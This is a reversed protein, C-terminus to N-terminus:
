TSRIATGIPSFFIRYPPTSYRTYVLAGVKTKQPEQSSSSYALLLDNGFDGPFQSRSFRSLAPGSLRNIPVQHVVLVCKFVRVVSPRCLCAKMSAHMAQQSTPKNAQQSTPQHEESVYAPWAATLFTKSWFRVHVGSLM